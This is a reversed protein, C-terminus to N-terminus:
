RCNFCSHGDGYYYDFMGDCREKDYKTEKCLFLFQIYMESGKELVVKSMGMPTCENITILLLQNVWESQKSTLTYIGKFRINNIISLGTMNYHVHEESFVGAADLYRYVGLFQETELLVNEEDCRIGNNTFFNIFAIM